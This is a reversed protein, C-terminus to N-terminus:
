RSPTGYTYLSLDDHIARNVPTPIAAAKGRELNGHMSSSM